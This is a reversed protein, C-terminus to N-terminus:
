HDPRRAVVLLSGGSPFRAGGRILAFEIRMVIGLIRNLLPSVRLVDRVERGRGRGLKSQLRELVMFPLLLSVFSTILVENFGAEHIRERLQGREYRREHHAM